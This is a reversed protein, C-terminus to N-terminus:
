WSLSYQGGLTFLTENARFDDSAPRRALREPPDGRRLNVAFADVLHSVQWSANSRM